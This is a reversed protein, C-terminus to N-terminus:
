NCSLTLEQMEVLRRDLFIVGVRPEEEDIFNEDPETSDQLHDTRMVYTRQDQQGVLPIGPLWNQRYNSTVVESIHIPLYSSSCRSDSLLPTQEGSSGESDQSPAPSNQGTDCQFLCDHFQLAGNKTPKVPVVLPGSSNETDSRGLLFSSISEPGFSDSRTEDTTGDSSPKSIQVPVCWSYHVSSEPSVQVPIDPQDCTWEQDCPEQSAYANIVEIQSKTLPFVAQPELKAVFGSSVEVKSIDDRPDSWFPLSSNKRLILAEPLSKESKLSLQCLMIPLVILLLLALLGPWILIHLWSNPASVTVCFSANGSPGSLGPHTLTYFVDGCYQVDTKVLWIFVSRSTDEFVKGALLEPHTLRVTYKVSSSLFGKGWFGINEVSFNWAVMPPLVTVNLHTQNSTVSLQPATFTTEWFPIFVVEGLCRGGASVKAHYKSTVDSMVHTMVDTMDCGPTSINQCWTVPEYPRGYLNYHVSYLLTQDPVDVPVWRLVSFFNRSEFYAKTGNCSKGWCGTFCLLFVAVRLPWM